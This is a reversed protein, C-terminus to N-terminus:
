PNIKVSFSLTAAAAPNLTGVSASFTGTAGAVPVATLTGVSLAAVPTAFYTTNAPVADSIVVSLVPAVGVNTATVQYMLCAGPIAGLNPTATAGITANSFAADPIGDCNADLAQQKTLTVQGVIVTTTDPVVLATAIGTVTATLNSTNIDGAAANAPSLVKVFLRVSTGPAIGAPLATNLGVGSVVSDAPDLAGIVGAAPNDLYVVNNWGVSAGLMPDTMTITSAASTASVVGASGEIVNGNNALIHSYVVSGGPFVQGANPPTLSLARVTNINVAEIKTDSAGTTPSTTAFTISTQGPTASSLTSVVTCVLRSASANLVGTNTLNGGLTSCNGAGGDAYYAVTWGTPLAGVTSMSYSDAVTSTNTVYLPFTATGGPNTNVVNPLSPGVGLGQLGATAVPGGAIAAIAPAGNTLDVKNATITTLTDTMPDSLAANVTSTATLVVNYAGGGSVGSPLVAKVVVLYAAGAAMPGTDVVGDPVANTDTLPTVGDSKFLLFTTGAPFTSGSLAVNFTDIGNGTNHVYDNFSVTAGQPASAVTVVDGAGGAGNLTTVVPDANTAVGASQLVTFNANNSPTGSGATPSTSSNVATCAAPQQAAGDNYCYRAQNVLVGPPTAAAVTAQFTLQGSQGSAVTPIIATIRGAVTIGYDFVDGAVSGAAVADTTAAGNWLASGAVYTMGTPLFDALMVNSAASNGTNTYTLTYTVTTGPAGSPISIAKTVAIVAQATVTVTDTNSASVVAGPLTSTATIGITASNGSVATVPVTTHAVFCVSAGAAVNNISTIATQNDAVGDCNSDAYYTPSPLTMTGPTNNATLTFSDTGNGTNTVTHPFSVPAGTAALRSQNSTLTMASVQQVITTVTNSTATRQIASGDTYTAAAQNSIVTGALPAALASLSTVGLMMGLVGQGWRQWGSLKELTAM